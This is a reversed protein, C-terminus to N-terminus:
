LQFGCGFPDFGFCNHHSDFASTKVKHGGGEIVCAKVDDKSLEFLSEKNLELRKRKVLLNVYDVLVIANNVVIGALSIIGVGSFIVNFENGTIVYGLLVGILSFFVSIIIIFPSIISNFQTVLIIFIFFVAAMFASSLFAMDEAQQQQEGTFAYTYEEPLSYDAMLSKLEENIANANFGELVNSSITVVRRSDLRRIANYTSSYEFSAVSSIPVQVIQGNSQNRFTILQNILDSINNRYNENLRVMIPYEDEGVKYKSVESGFVSTRIAGAIQGTSIGYRRAAERDINILLEPKGLEVDLKLEEIGGINQEDIFDKVKNSLVLLSDIDDGRM